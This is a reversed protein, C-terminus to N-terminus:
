IGKRYAPTKAGLVNNCKKGKKTMAGGGGGGGV